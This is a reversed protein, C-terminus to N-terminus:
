LNKFLSLYLTRNINELFFLDDVRFNDEIRFVLPDRPQM